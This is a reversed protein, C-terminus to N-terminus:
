KCIEKLAKYYIDNMFRVKDLTIYENAQHITSEEDEEEPGFGCGCKLARAYTGGGIAVPKENKGSAENYVKLLTQIMDGNPDNFLPAEFNVLEYNINRKEFESTIEELKHTAPYRFDTTIYLVGDKFEALDPSMTLNGTVDHMSKLNAEDDFLFKVVSKLGDDCVSLAKLACELANIGKEPLSGHASKGKVVLTDGNLEFSTGEVPPTLEKIKEIANAKLVIEARDCVMNAREGAKFSTFPPNSLPFAAKIHAIGKEAYIVPFNADPSFGEEPMVAVKNYHKLCEWGCEENCGLILKIKRKPKFGEDKLAKLCYLCSVAPGKDDMTGRGWIKGDSIEGGFPDHTWGSGAPVVDLHALVAFEKGSGFIVEGVYNDYNHTEFGFSEALSLFSQLCEAAEKGFPANEEAPKLSSDYKIMDCITKVTAEFYKQM